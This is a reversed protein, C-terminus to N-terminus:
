YLNISFQSNSSITIIKKEPFFSLVETECYLRM